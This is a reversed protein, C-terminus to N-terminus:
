YVGFFAWSWYPFINEVFCASSKNILGRMTLNDVTKGMNGVVAIIFSAPLSSKRVKWIWKTGKRAV